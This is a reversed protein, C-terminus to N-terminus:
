LRDVIQLVDCVMRHVYKIVGSGLALLSRGLPNQSVAAHTRSAAERTRQWAAESAQSIAASTTRAAHAAKTWRDGLWSGGTASEDAATSGVVASSSNAARQVGSGLPAPSEAPLDSARATSQM